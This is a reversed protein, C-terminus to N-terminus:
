WLNTWIIFPFMVGANSSILAFRPDLNHTYIIVHNVRKVRGTVTRALGLSDFPLHYVIRSLTLLVIESFSREIRYNEIILLEILLSHYSWQVEWSECLCSLGTVHCDQPSRFRALECTFQLLEEELDVLCSLKHCITCPLPVCCRVNSLVIDSMVTMERPNGIRASVCLVIVLLRAFFSSACIGRM